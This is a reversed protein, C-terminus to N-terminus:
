PALRLAGEPSVVGVEDSYLAPGITIEKPAVLGRLDRGEGLSAGLVAALTHGVDALDVPGTAAWRASTVLPIQSVPAAATHGHELGADGLAEGHDATIVILAGDVGDVLRLLARDVRAAAERYASAWCARGDGTQWWPDALLAERAGGQTLVDPRCGAEAYPLHVDMLHLWLLRPGPTARLADLARDVLVEAEGRWPERRLARAFLPRGASLPSPDAPRAGPVRERPDLVREFGRFGWAGQEAYPNGGQVAITHYGAEAAVEALTRRPSWAQDRGLSPSGSHLARLAPRTWPANTWASPFGTGRAALRRSVELEAGVDARLADVTVLVVDPRGDGEPAAPSPLLAVCGAAWPLAPRVRGLAWVAAAAGWAVPGGGLAALALPGLGPHRHLLGALPLLAAAGWWTMGPLALLAAACVLPVVAPARRGLLLAAGWGLATAVADGAGVPGWTLRTLLLEGGGTVAVLRLLAATHPGQRGAADAAGPGAADSRASSGVASPPGVAEVELTGASPPGTAGAAARPPGAGSM